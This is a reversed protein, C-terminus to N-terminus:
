VRVNAIKMLQPIDVLKIYRGQLEIVKDAKFESLLRIVSETATGVMNALDERTMAIRLRKEEDMEFTELLTLLVQALRERVTKQALNLIFKNAEGLEHCIISLLTQAYKNNKKFLTLIIDGPIYCVSSETLAEASTCAPENAIISRYGIPDGVKAFRIIQDKGEFGTKYIKLIGSVVIYIGGTNCGERYVVSGKKLRTLTIREEVDRVEAETLDKFLTYKKLDVCLLDTTDFYRRM